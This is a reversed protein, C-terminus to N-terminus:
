APLAIIKQHSLAFPAGHHVRSIKWGAQALIDRFQTLTREVGGNLAMMEVDMLYSTSNAGGFNRLLPAPPPSLAAGPIEHVASEPCAYAMINDVIVLQTSPMAAARLHRLITLCDKDLYDHMIMRMLFVDADKVTQPSFFDHAQLVTRGSELADPNEAMWFIFRLNPCHKSLTLSQAGLGGGVDVVLAHEGLGAWDMGDVIALPPSMNKTGEMTMGFRRLRYEQEPTDFLEWISLPTKMGRNFAIDHFDNAHGSVPDFLTETLYSLSKMGVDSFHGIAAAMGSTKDHKGKPNSLIAEISKDTDMFSSLRNQAFVDPEVEQFIHYTVLLRLVRSLKAPDIGSPKALDKVGVGRPGADRLIEAVHAEAAINLAAPVNFIMATNVLTMPPPYVTATLQATAAAIIAAADRVDPLARAAESEPTFPTDLTPFDLGKSTLTADIKKISDTILQGLEYLQNLGARRYLQSHAGKHQGSSGDNQAYSM